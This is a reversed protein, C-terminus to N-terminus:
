RAARCRLGARSRSPRSTTSRGSTATSTDTEFQALAKAAADVTAESQGKAEKLFTPYQRKIRENSPNHTTM